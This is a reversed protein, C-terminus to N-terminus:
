DVSLSLGVVRFAKRVVEQRELSFREWAEGVAWTTAVRRRGVMSGQLSGGTALIREEENEIETLQM